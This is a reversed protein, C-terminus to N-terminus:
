RLPRPLRATSAPDPEFGDSFFPPELVGAGSLSISAPTFIVVGAPMSAFQLSAAVNGLVAPRFVVALTCAGGPEVLVNSSSPCSGGAVRAFQTSSFQSSNILLNVASDVNGVGVLQPASSRGRFVPGFALQPPDLVAQLAAANGTLSVSTPTATATPTSFVTLAGTFGNGVSQSFFVVNVICSQAVGLSIPEPGCSGGNLLGFRSSAFVSSLSLPVDSTNSLTVAQPPSVGTVTANFSLSTPAFSLMAAPASGSLAVTSPTQATPPSTSINLAGTFGNGVTQSSFALDVTCSQGAALAIPVASCSGGPVRTFRPSTSLATLSIPVDSSNSLTVTQPLSTATVTASFTLSAPSAGFTAAAASGTLAVTAPAFVGSPSSSVSLSGTFGNGVTQSSFTVQVSCSSGDALVFPLAPCSGGASVAFRPTTALATVSIAAGSVNSLTVPQPASTATVTASFSLSSPSLSAGNGAWAPLAFLTLLAPLFGHGMKWRMRGHRM